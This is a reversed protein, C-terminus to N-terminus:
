DIHSRIGKGVAALMLSGLLRYRLAKSADFFAGDNEIDSSFRRFGISHRDAWLLLQVSDHGNDLRQEFAGVGQDRDIGVAGRGGPHSELRANMDDVINM